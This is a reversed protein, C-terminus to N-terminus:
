AHTDSRTGAPKRRAQQKWTMASEATSAWSYDRMYEGRYASVAEADGQLFLDADCTFRDPVISMTGNKLQFIEEIGWARLTARLNRIIADLQKQMGRDYLRDEWLITFVEPRTVSGGHKDVLYALLEKCKATRFSVRKGDVFVDFHGFTKVVVHATMRRRKGSLAYAVDSALRERSVPKLLYGSARIAFAQVAYQPFATLFVIATDPRKERIASALELGNMGPMAIDLIAIDARNEELYELAEEPQTFGKAEDIEPLELCLSVTEEVIAREDDVCIAKM